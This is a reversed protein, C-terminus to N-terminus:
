SSAVGDGLVGVDFLLPWDSSQWSVVWVALGFAGLLLGFTSGPRRILWCLGVLLSTAVLYGYYLATATPHPVHNSTAALLVSVGAFALIALVASGTAIRREGLEVPSPVDLSAM